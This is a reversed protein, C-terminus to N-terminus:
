ARHTRRPVLRLDHFVFFIGMGSEDPPKLKHANTTLAGVLNKVCAYESNTSRTSPRSLPQPQQLPPLPASGDPDLPPSPSAPLPSLAPGAAFPPMFSKRMGGGISTATSPPPGSSGGALMSASTASTSPRNTMATFPRASMSTSASSSTSTKRWPNSPGAEPPPPWHPPGLSEPGGFAQMPPQSPDLPVQQNHTQPAQFAFTSMPPSTDTGPISARRWSPRPMADLPMALEAERAIRTPSSGEITERPEIRRPYAYTYTHSEDLAEQSTHIAPSHPPSRDSISDNSIPGSLSYQALSYQSHISAITLLLQLQHSPLAPGFGVAETASLTASPAALQRAQSEPLSQRAAEVRKRQPAPTLVTSATAPRKVTPM